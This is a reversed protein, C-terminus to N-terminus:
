MTIFDTWRFVKITPDPGLRRSFTSTAPTVAQARQLLTALEAMSDTGHADPAVDYVVNGTPDDLHCIPM